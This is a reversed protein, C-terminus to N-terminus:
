SECEQEKDNPPYVSFSGTNMLQGFTYRHPKAMMSKDMSYTGDENRSFREGDDRWLASCPAPSCDENTASM